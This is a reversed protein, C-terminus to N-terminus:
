NHRSKHRRLARELTTIDVHGLTNKEKMSALIVRLLERGRPAGRLKCIESILEAYFEVSQGFYDARPRGVRRVNKYEVPKAQALLANVTKRPHKRPRGGKNAKIM